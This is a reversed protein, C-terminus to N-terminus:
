QFGARREALRWPWQVLDTIRDQATPTPPREALRVEVRDSVKVFRNGVLVPPLTLRSPDIGDLSRGLAAAGVELPAETLREYSVIARRSRPHTLYTLWTLLGVVLLYANASVASKDGTSRFSRVVSSPRRVLYVLRVRDRGLLRRLARARRPYHSSDIVTPCGSEATVAELMENTTREYGPRLRQRAWPRWLGAPHEFLRKYQGAEPPLPGTRSRVQEWFPRSRPVSSVGNRQTWDCLEGAYFVGEAQGMLVGLLTSGSRAAGMIFVVEALGAPIRGDDPV